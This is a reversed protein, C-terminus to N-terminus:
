QKLIKMVQKGVQLIYVGSAYGSLDIELSGANEPFNQLLQGNPHFLKIEMETDGMQINVKGQTPNPYVRIGAMNAAETGAEPVFIAHIRHNSSLSEFTYQELPGMRNDDVVVDSIIWNDAAKISYSVTEGEEAYTTDSPLITGEGEHSAIIMFFTGEQQIERFYATLETDADLSFTYSAQNGLSDEGAQWKVFEFGENATATVTVETRAEFEGGGNVTGGEEPVATLVLTYTEPEPKEPYSLSIDDISLFYSNTSEFHRFAIFILSDKYRTLDLVTEHYSADELTEKHLPVFHATDTGHCSVLIEYTEAFADPAGAGVHFSLHLSDYEVQIAPTILWNDPTLVTDQGNELFFFSYSAM